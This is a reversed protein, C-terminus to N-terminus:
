VAITQNQEGGGFVAREIATGHRAATPSTECVRQMLERASAAPLGAIQDEHSLRV